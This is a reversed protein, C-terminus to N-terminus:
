SGTHRADLEDAGTGTVTGTCSITSTRNTMQGHRTEQGSHMVAVIQVQAQAKQLVRNPNHYSVILFFMAQLVVTLM